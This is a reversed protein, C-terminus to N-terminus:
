VSASLSASVLSGDADWIAEADIGAESLCEALIRELRRDGDTCAQLYATITAATTM